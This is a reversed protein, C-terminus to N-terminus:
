AGEFEKMNELRSIEIKIRYRNELIKKGKLEKM